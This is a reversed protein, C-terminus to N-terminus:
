ALFGQGSDKSMAALASEADLCLVLGERDAGVPAGFRRLHGGLSCRFHRAVGARIHGAASPPQAMCDCGAVSRVSGKLCEFHNRVYWAAVSFSSALSGM